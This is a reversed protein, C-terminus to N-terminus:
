HVFKRKGWRERDKEKEKGGKLRVEIEYAPIVSLM